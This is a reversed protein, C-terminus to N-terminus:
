QNIVHIFKNDKKLSKSIILISFIKREHLLREADIPTVRSVQQINGPGLDAIYPNMAFYSQGQIHDLHSLQLLIQHRFAHM